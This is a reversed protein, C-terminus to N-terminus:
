FETIRNAEKISKTYFNISFSMTKLFRNKPITSKFYNGYVKNYVVPIYINIFEDFLPIQFGADFLFRDVDANREWAEAYTGVDM